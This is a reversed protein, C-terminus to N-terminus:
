CLDVVGDKGGREQLWNIVEESREVHARCWYELNRSPLLGQLLVSRVHVTIGDNRRKERIKPILSEWRWDLINFPMQIFKIEPVDLVRELEQPNQVSAGLEKIMGKRKHELLRKWAAGQWDDIHSSRHLLLIDLSAVCLASCSQYISADVLANVTADSALQECDALSSLKTIIRARGGWGSKLVEGIVAESNGYERATDIYRAGNVIAAKIIKESEKRDPVGLNNAVGYPLGLQVTGLVLKSCNGSLIPQFPASELRSVLDLFCVTVPNEVGEFAASVSLYDELCDITCRFFAKELFKYKEFYAVGFKRRIIPTVHERDFEDRALLISERLHKLYTLEVSVGYPLGSQEGNCCVYNLERRIFDYEIEDLLKGDPFVNDATLRFVMTDGGYGSLADVLRELTNELSGRYCALGHRILLDALVNDSSENSTAVVVDRGTTAARKAALVVIPVGNIPLLVKGPLRSSNTRAQLVVVSKV